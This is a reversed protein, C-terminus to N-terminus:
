SVPLVLAIADPVYAVDLDDIDGLYDGDVQWPFREGAGAGIATLRLAELDARQVIMPDRALRRAGGVTSGFTGAVDAV